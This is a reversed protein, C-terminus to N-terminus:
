HPLSTEYGCQPLSRGGGVVGSSFVRTALIAFIPHLLFSLFFVSVLSLLFFFTPATLLYSIISAIARSGAQKGQGMHSSEVIEKRLM